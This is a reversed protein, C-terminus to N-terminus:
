LYNLINEMVTETLQGPATSQTDSASVFTFPAGLKLAAVRTIAGLPGMGIALMPFGYNYLGLLHANDRTQKVMTAVKVLDAGRQVSEKVIEALQGADPTLDYNHYSIIVKCHHKKAFAIISSTFGFSSEIEIDVWKAGGEIAAKLLETRQADTLNEPRCTALLNPHQMFLDRVQAADLGSVELRIEAMQAGQMLNVITDYGSQAISRCLM